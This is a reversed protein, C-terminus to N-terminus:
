GENFSYDGVSISDITGIIRVHNGLMSNTLVKNELNTHSQIISNSIVSNKITTGKEVSVHPGIICNELVVDDGLYCPEKVISNHVSINKGRESAEKDTELIRQNTHVIVDKNGCDLWEDVQQTKLKAGDKRLLEIADTIQFEGKTRIDHEILHKMKEKLAHGDKFYYIGIIALDSVFEKPKEVLGKIVGEDDLHVVGFASPDDVQQVFLVGDENTDITGEATFLTDSLAVMTKGDLLEEACLLAHAIGEPSRQYFIHGEANFQQAVDKLFSEVDKGFDEGIIFGINEINEDILDMLSQVLREVIPKGAIPLLPKPTTLTHPRMRTGRGAMPIVINM